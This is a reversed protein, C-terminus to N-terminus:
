SGLILSVDLLAEIRKDLWAPYRRGVDMLNDAAVREVRGHVWNHVNSLFGSASGAGERSVWERDVRLAAATELRDLVALVQAVVPGGDQVKLSAVAGVLAYGLVRVGQEAAHRAAHGDIVHLGVEVGVPVLLDGAELGYTWGTGDNKLGLVRKLKM